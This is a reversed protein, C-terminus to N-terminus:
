RAPVIARTSARPGQLRSEVGVKNAPRGCAVVMQWRAERARSPKRGRVAQDNRNAFRARASMFAPERACVEM